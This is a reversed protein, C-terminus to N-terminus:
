FEIQSCLKEIPWIKLRNLAMKEKSLLFRVLICYIDFDFRVEQELCDENGVQTKIHDNLITSPNSKERRLVTYGLDHIDDLSRVQGIYRWHD